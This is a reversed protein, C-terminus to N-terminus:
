RHLQFHRLELPKAGLGCDLDSRDSRGRGTVVDSGRMSFSDEFGVAASLPNRGTTGATVVACTVDARRILRAPM